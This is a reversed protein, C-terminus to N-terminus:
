KNIYGVSACKLTASMVKLQAKPVLVLAFHGGPDYAGLDACAQTSTATSLLKTCQAEFDADKETPAKKSSTTKGDADKKDEVAKLIACGRMNNPIVFPKEQDQPKKVDASKQVGRQNRNDQGDSQLRKDQNNQDQDREAIRERLDREQMTNQALLLSSHFLTFCIGLAITTSTLVRKM